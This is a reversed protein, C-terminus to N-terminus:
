KDYSAKDLESFNLGPMIYHVKIADDPGFKKSFDFLARIKKKRREEKQIDKDLQDIEYEAFALIAANRSPENYWVIKGAKVKGPEDAVDYKKGKENIFIWRMKDISGRYANITVVPADEKDKQKLAGDTMTYAWVNDIVTNLNEKM